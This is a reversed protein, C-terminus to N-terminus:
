YHVPIKVNIKLSFINGFGDEAFELTNSNVQIREDRLQVTGRNRHCRSRWERIPLSNERSVLWIIHINKGLLM